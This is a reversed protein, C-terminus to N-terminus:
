VFQNLISVVQLWYNKGFLNTHVLLPYLNYIEFRQKYGTQLPFVEHYASLFKPDFGGFLTTMALDVERNGFYVAPDILCPLGADDVILNGSWLDGHLLAPREPNVLNVLEKALVEFKKCSAMDAIGANRAKELQLMLRNHIFFELWSESQQNCQELSGIYNDHDLGFNVATVQHVDALGRGFHEWYQSTRAASHIYEMVIYQYHTTSSSFVVSPVTIAHASALLALGKAEAEFMKPFKKLDNWKLFYVNAKTQIRGGQNICGGSSFSFSIIPEGLTIELSQL